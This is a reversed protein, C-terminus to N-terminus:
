RRKPRKPSWDMLERLREYKENEPLYNIRELFAALERGEEKYRELAKIAGESAKRSRAKAIYAESALVQAKAMTSAMGLQGDLYADDERVKGAGSILKMMDKPTTKGKEGIGNLSLLAKAQVEVSLPELPHSRVGAALDRNYLRMVKPYWFDGGKRKLFELQRLINREHSLTERAESEMRSNTDEIARNVSFGREHLRRLSRTKYGSADMTLGPKKWGM